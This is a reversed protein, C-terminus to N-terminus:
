SQTHPSAIFLVQYRVLSPPPCVTTLQKFLAFHESLFLISLYSLHVRHALWLELHFSVLLTETKVLVKMLSQITCLFTFNQRPHIQKSTQTFNCAPLNWHETFTGSSELDKPSESKGSKRFKWIKRSSRSNKPNGFNGSCESNTLLSRIWCVVTLNPNVLGVTHQSLSQPATKSDNNNNFSSSCLIDSLRPARSYSIIPKSLNLSTPFNESLLQKFRVHQATSDFPTVFVTPIPKSELSKHKHRNTYNDLLESRSRFTVSNFLPLLFNVPYGRARLRTFFLNKVISYDQISSCNRIYRTLEATIFSKKM